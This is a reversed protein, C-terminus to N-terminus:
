NERKAPPVIMCSQLPLFEIAVQTEEKPIPCRFILFEQHNFGCFPVYPAEPYRSRPDSGSDYWMWRAFKSIEPFLHKWPLGGNRAGVTVPKWDSDVSNKISKNIEYRRPARPFRRNLGTPLVEWRSDGTHLTFAGTFSGIVGQYGDDDSWAIIYLYGNKKIDIVRGKLRDPRRIYHYGYWNTGQGLKKRVKERDGVWVQYANDCTFLGSIKVRDSDPEMDEAAVADFPLFPVLGLVAILFLSKPFNM